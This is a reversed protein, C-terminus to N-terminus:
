TVNRSRLFFPGLGRIRGRSGCNVIDPCLQFLEPALSGALYVISFMWEILASLCIHFL